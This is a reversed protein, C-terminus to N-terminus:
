EVACSAGADPAAPRALSSASTRARSSSVRQNWASWAGLPQRTAFVVNGTPGPNVHADGQTAIPALLADRRGLTCLPQGGPADVTIAGQTGKTIGFGQLGGSPVGRKARQRNMLRCDGDCPPPMQRIERQVATDVRPQNQHPFAINNAATNLYQAIGGIDRGTQAIGRIRTFYQDAARSQRAIRRHEFERIPAYHSQGINLLRQDHM